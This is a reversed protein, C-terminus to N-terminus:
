RATSSRRDPRHLFEPDSWLGRVASGEPNRKEIASASAVGVAIPQTGSVDERRRDRQGVVDAGTPRSWTRARICTATMCQSTPVSTTLVHQIPHGPEDKPIMEDSSQSLGRHGAKAYPGLAGALSRQCLGRPLRHLRELSLRRGVDNTGLFNLTPDLLRTKQLGIFVPDTRNLTGLGRNSM